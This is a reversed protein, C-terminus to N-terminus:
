KYQDIVGLLDPLGYIKGVLEKYRKKYDAAEARATEREKTRSLVTPSEFSHPENGHDSQFLCRAYFGGGVQETVECQSWEVIDIAELLERFEDLEIDVEKAIKKM